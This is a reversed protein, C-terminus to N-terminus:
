VSPLTAERGRKLMNYIGRSCLGQQIAFERASIKSDKFKRFVDACRADYNKRRTENSKRYGDTQGYKIGLNWVRHTKYYERLGTTDGVRDKSHFELHAEKSMICLNELRNDKSDGNLHHIVCGVPVEGHAQMWVKKHSYIRKKNWTTKKYKYM